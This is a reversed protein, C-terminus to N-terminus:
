LFSFVYAEYGNYFYGEFPAHETTPFLDVNDNIKIYFGTGTM